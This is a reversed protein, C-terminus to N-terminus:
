AAGPKEQVPPDAPLPEEDVLPTEDAFLVPQEEVPRGDAASQVCLVGDNSKLTGVLNELQDDLEEVYFGNLRLHSVAQSVQEIQQRLHKSLRAEVWTKGAHRFLRIKFM